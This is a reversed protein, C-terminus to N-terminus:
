LYCKKKVYEDCGCKDDKGAMANIAHELLLWVREVNEESAVNHFVRNTYEAQNMGELAVPGIYDDHEIAVCPAQQCAGLCPSEEVLIKTGTDQIRAYFAAFTALEDM